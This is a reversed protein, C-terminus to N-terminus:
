EGSLEGESYRSEIFRWQTEFQNQRDRSTEEILGGLERAVIELSRTFRRSSETREARAEPPLALYSNVLGPLHQGILRSADGALQSVPDLTKLHPRLEDLRKMLMDAAPLASEPLQDRRMRRLGDAATTLADPAPTTESRPKKRRRTPLLLALFAVIYAGLVAFLWNLFGIPAGFQSYAILAGILGLFILTSRKVRRFAERIPRRLSEKTLSTSQDPTDLGIPAPVSNRLLHETEKLIRDLDFGSV